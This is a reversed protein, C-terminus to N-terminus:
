AARQVESRHPYQADVKGANASMALGASWILCGAAAVVAAGVAVRNLMRAM